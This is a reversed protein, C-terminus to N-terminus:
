EFYPFEVRHYHNSSQTRGLSNQHQEGMRTRNGSGGALPNEALDSELIGDHNSLLKDVLLDLKKNMDEM